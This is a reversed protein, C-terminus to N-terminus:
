PTRCPPHWATTPPRSSDPPACPTTLPQTNSTTAKKAAIPMAANTLEAVIDAATPRDKKITTNM